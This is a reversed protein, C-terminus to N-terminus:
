FSRLVRLEEELEKIRDVYNGCQSCEYLHPPEGWGNNAVEIISIYFRRKADISMHQDAISDPELAFIMMRLYDSASIMLREARWKIIESEKMSMRGSLRSSRKANQVTIKKLRNRLKEVEIYYAETDASQEDNEEEVLYILNDIEKKINEQNKEIDDLEKLSNEAINKWGNIDVSSLARNRIFNSMSVKSGLDNLKKVENDLSVREQATVTVTVRQDLPASKKRRPSAKPKWEKFLDVLESRGIENLFEIKENVSMNKSGIQYSEKKSRTQAEKFKKTANYLSHPM